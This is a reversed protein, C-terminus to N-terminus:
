LQECSKLSAAIKYDGTLFGTKLAPRTTFAHLLALLVVRLIM